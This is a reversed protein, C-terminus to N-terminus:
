SRSAAHRAFFRDALVGPETRRLYAYRHVVTEFTEGLMEAAEAFDGVKKLFETAWIARVQRVDTAHGTHDRVAKRVAHNLTNSSYPRGALSTFLEPLDKGPLMPRWVTLFEELQLVLDEPFLMRHNSALQRITVSLEGARFQIMWRGNACRLNRGIQMNCVRRTPLPRRVLLRIMLSQQAKMAVAIREDIATAPIFALQALGPYESLGAQEIAALSNWRKHLDRKTAQRM